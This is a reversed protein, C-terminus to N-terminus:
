SQSQQSTICHMPMACGMTFQCGRMEPLHNLFGSLENDRHFHFSFQNRVAALPGNKGISSRLEELAAVGEASMKERYELGMPNKLFFRQFVDLAEFTKGALSIIATTLQVLWVDRAVNSIPESNVISGVLRQFLMLDNTAWGLRLLCELDAAPLSTLQEKTLVLEYLQPPDISM